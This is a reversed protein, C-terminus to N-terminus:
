CRATAARWVSGSKDYDRGSLALRREQWYRLKSVTNKANAGSGAHNGDIMWACAKALTTRRATKQDVIEEGTAKGEIVRQWDEAARISGFTKSQYSGNRRAQVRFKDNARIQIGPKM